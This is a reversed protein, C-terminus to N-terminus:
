GFTLSYMGTCMVALVARQSLFFSKCRKRLARPILLFTMLDEADKSM